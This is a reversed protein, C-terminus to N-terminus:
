PQNLKTIEITPDLARMRDIIVQCYKPDMEVGYCRRGLQHAAVMTSGSGLFGDLVIEGPRTSNAIHEGVLPVPKMTPHESNRSPKNHHTVSTHAGLMQELLEKMQAKNLKNLDIPEDEIITSLTRDDTFYHAAGPKWGYLCPEHQWQYDQRGLTFSSKVWVLTQKQMIGAEKMARRFNLGESDAHWIYWAGGLKVRANMAKFADLLFNLFNGDSMNDNAIKAHKDTTYDVNYPPDTVVANAWEEPLLTEFTEALTTDGCLLRHPGIAFRDGLQIDTQVEDPVDYNDDEATQPEEPEYDPVDLGWENLDDADYENCLVDWDWEGYSANDKIVFRRQQAEDWNAVYVPVSKLGAARAAKLRMNGGLVMLEPDTVIPRAELMQPDDQLSKILLDFKHTRIIRPNKPNLKLENPSIRHVKNTEYAPKKM